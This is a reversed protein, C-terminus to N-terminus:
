GRVSWKVTDNYNAATERMELLMKLLSDYDGWGNEPNMARFREPDAELGAIIQGLYADGADTTTGDLREWWAAGIAPGLPGDCQETAEGTVSEYAAAIMVNVNHTYNWSALETGREAVLEADWSM